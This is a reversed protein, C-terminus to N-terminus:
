IGSPRDDPHDQMGGLDERDIHDDRMETSREDAMGAATPPLRNVDGAAIGGYESQPQSYLLDFKKDAEYNASAIGLTSLTLLTTIIVRKM